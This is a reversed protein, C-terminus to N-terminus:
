LEFEQNIPVIRPLNASPHQSLIYYRQESHLIYSDTDKPMPVRIGRLALVVLIM